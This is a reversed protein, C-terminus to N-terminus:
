SNIHLLKLTKPNKLRHTPAKPNQHKANANKHQIQPNLAQPKPAHPKMTEPESTEILNCPKKWILTIQLKPPINQTERQEKILDIM